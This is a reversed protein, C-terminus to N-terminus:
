SSELICFGGFLEDHLLVSLLRFFLAVLCVMKRETTSFSREGIKRRARTDRGCTDGRLNPRPSGLSSSLVFTRTAIGRSFYQPLSCVTHSPSRAQVEASTRVLAACRPLQAALSRVMTPACSRGPAKHFYLLLLQRHQAVGLPPPLSSQPLQAPTIPPHRKKRAAPNQRSSLVNRFPTKSRPTFLPPFEDVDHMSLHIVAELIARHSYAFIVKSM